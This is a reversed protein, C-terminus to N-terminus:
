RCDALGPDRVYEAQARRDYYEDVFTAKQKLKDRKRVAREGTQDALHDLAPFVLPAVDPFEMEGYTKGSSARLSNKIKAPGSPHQLTHSVTSNVDFTAHTDPSEPNWTMILCYLGRPRFFDDNIKDMFTNTRCASTLALGDLRFTGM